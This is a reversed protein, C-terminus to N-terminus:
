PGSDAGAAVFGAWYFPHAGLGRARRDTLVGLSAARAAEATPRGESWRARYLRTMWDRTTDDDVPWLSSIVTRVGAARFARHLGQIVEVGNPDSSGTACASLVAWEVGDLDLSMVEESTLWGDERGSSSDIRAAGALALAALTTGALTASTGTIGISRTGGDFRISRDAFSLGHTALHVIRKHASLSKFAEESADLGTLVIAQDLRLGGRSSWLRGIEAVEDATGPLSELTLGKADRLQSRLAILDSLRSDPRKVAAPARDYAPAGLALLGRGFTAGATLPALDREATLIQILPGNEVIWGNSGQPLASLNLTAIMGDPVVCVRAGSGIWPALPDWIRSRVQAGLQRFRRWAQSDAAAIPRECQERWQTMLTELERATGLPVVVPEGFESPRVFALYRAEWVTGLGSDAPVPPVRHKYRAYAVLSADHPLAEFAAELGAERRGRETRYPTSVEGLAREAAERWRRVEGIVRELSDSREHELSRVLLKALSDRAAALEAVRRRTGPENSRIAQRLETRQDLVSLRSFALATWTTRAAGRDLGSDAAATLLLDNGSRMTTVFQLAERESLELASERLVQSSRSQLDLAAALAARRDGRDYRATVWAAEFDMTQPSRSGYLSDRIAFAQHSLREAEDRHGLAGHVTAISNLRECEWAPGAARGAELLPVLTALAEAPRGRASRMVALRGLSFLTNPDRAGITRARIEAAERIRLEASDLVGASFFCEGSAALATALNPHDPPLVRRGIAVAMESQRRAGDFDGLSALVDALRYRALIGRWHWFGNVSDSLALAREGHDRAALYDGVATFCQTLGGLLDARTDPEITRESALLNLGQQYARISAPWDGHLANGLAHYLRAHSSGPGRYRERIEIATRFQDAAAPSQLASLVRGLMVHAALLRTTDSPAHAHLLALSEECRVRAESARFRNHSVRAAHLLTRALAASDANARRIAIARVALSEAEVPVPPSGFSELLLDIAAAVPPGNPGHLRELGPLASRALSEAAAARGARALDIARVLVTDPSDSSAAQPTSARAASGVVVAISILGAGVLHRVCRRSGM